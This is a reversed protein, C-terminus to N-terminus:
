VTMEKIELVENEGPNNQQDLWSNMGTIEKILTFCDDSATSKKYDYIHLGAAKSNKFTTDTGIVIPLLYPKLLHDNAVETMIQLSLKERADYKNFIIKYDINLNQDSFTDELRKIESVSMIVGDLSDMDTNLPILNLDAFCAACATIKNAQPPCDTVILDYNPLISKFMANFFGPFNITKSSLITEIQSNELSSPLIDLFTHAQRIAEKPTSSGDIIHKLVNQRHKKMGFSQTLNGQMDLDFGGTKFGLRSAGELIATALATKGIGGKMGFINIILPSNGTKYIFGREELIARVTPPSLMKKNNKPITELNLSKILKYILHTSIGILKSLEKASLTTRTNLNETSM